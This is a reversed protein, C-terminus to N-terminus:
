KSAGVGLGVIATDPGHGAVAGDARPIIHSPPVGCAVLADRVAMARSLSLRMPASKDSSDAPAYADIAVLGGAGAQRCLLQLAAAAGLPLDASHPAFGVSVPALPAPVVVPPAVPPLAPATLAPAVPPKAVVAIPKPAVHKHVVHAVPRVVPASVREATMSPMVGALQQLADQHIIVQASALAPALTLLLALYIPKM